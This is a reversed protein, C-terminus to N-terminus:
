KLLYDSLHIKLIIKNLYITEFANLMKKLFFNTKNFINLAQVMQPVM